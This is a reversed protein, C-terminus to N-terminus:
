IYGLSRLRRLREEEPIASDPISYKLRCKEVLNEKYKKLKALIELHNEDTRDFLDRQEAPDKALDFAFPAFDERDPDFKAYKFVMDRIKVCVWMLDPDRRPYLRFYLSGRYEPWKAVDDAVLVTHSFAPLSPPQSQGIIAPSLDIGDPKNVEPMHLNCLGGMTPFVDISRTVPSYTGPSIGLSPARMIFPVSLVEPALQFGHTFKFFTNDRYLTEGHDATFVILSEDLLDNRRLNEIVKGFLMDSYFISCKYLFEIVRIFKPFDERSLDLKAVTNQFDFSFAFGSKELGLYLQKLRNFEEVSVGVKEFEAPLVEPRDYGRCLSTYLGHTVTFSTFIFARYNPDQNLRAVIENFTADTGSLNRSIANAPKVGHGYGFAYNAM